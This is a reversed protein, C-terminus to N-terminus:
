KNLSDDMYENFLELEIEIKCVELHFFKNSSAM